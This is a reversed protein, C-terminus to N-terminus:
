VTRGKLKNISRSLADSSEDRPLGANQYNFKETYSKLQKELRSWSEKQRNIIWGAFEERVKGYLAKQSKSYLEAFHPMCFGRSELCLKKFKEDNQWMSLLTEYYRQINEGIKNCIICSNTIGNIYESLSESNKSVRKGQRLAEELKKFVGKEQNIMYTHLQLAIPLNKHEKYMMHLHSGCFGHKNVLVREAPEMAAANLYSSIFGKELKEEILCIPCESGAEFAEYIPLTDLKYQM